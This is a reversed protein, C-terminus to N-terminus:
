ESAWFQLSSFFVKSLIIGPWYHVSPNLVTVWRAQIFSFWLFLVSWESSNLIESVPCLMDEIGLYGPKRVTITIFFPTLGHSDPWNSRCPGVHDKQGIYEM